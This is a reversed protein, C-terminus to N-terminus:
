YEIHARLRHEEDEGEDDEEYKMSLKLSARWKQLAPHKNSM